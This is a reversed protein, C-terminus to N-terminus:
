WGGRGYDKVAGWVWVVDGFKVEYVDFSAYYIYFCNCLLTQPLKYPLLHQILFIKPPQLLGVKLWLICAFVKVHGSIDNKARYSVNIHWVFSDFLRAEPRTTIYM